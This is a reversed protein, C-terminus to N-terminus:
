SMAWFGQPLQQFLKAMEKLATGTSVGPAPVGQIDISGFGNYRTLTTPGVTWSAKAFSSFPAMTNTATRM